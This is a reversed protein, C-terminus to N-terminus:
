INYKKFLEHRTPCYCVYSGGFTNKYTCYDPKATKLFCGNGGFCIDVVCVDRNDDNLCKFKHNCRTTKNIIEESIQYFM